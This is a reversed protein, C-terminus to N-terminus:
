SHNSNMFYFIKKVIRIIAFIMRVQFAAHLEELSEQSCQEEINQKDLFEDFKRQIRIDLFTPFSILYVHFSLGTLFSAYFPM